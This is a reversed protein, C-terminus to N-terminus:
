RGSLPPPMAHSDNKFAEIKSLIKDERSDNGKSISLSRVAFSIPAVSSTKSVSSEYMSTAYNYFIGDYNAVYSGSVFAKTTKKTIPTCWTQAFALSDNEWLCIQSGQKIAAVTSGYENKGIYRGDYNKDQIVFTDTFKEVGIRYIFTYTGLANDAAYVSVSQVFLTILFVTKIM